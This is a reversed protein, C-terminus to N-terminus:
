GAPRCAGGDPLGRDALMGARGAGTAAGDARTATDAMRMMHTGRRGKGAVRAGLHPGFRGTRACNAIGGSRTSIRPLRWALFTTWTREYAALSNPSLKTASDIDCDM